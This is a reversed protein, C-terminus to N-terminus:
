SRVWLRVIIRARPSCIIKGKIAAQHNSALRVFKARGGDMLRIPSSSTVIAVNEQDLKEMMRSPILIVM